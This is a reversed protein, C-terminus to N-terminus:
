ISNWLNFRVAVTDWRKKDLFIDAKMGLKVPYEDCKGEEEEYVKKFEKM